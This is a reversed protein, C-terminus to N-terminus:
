EQPLKEYLNNVDEYGSIVKLTPEQDSARISHISIGGRRRYLGAVLLYTPKYKKYLQDYMIEVLNEHFHQTDRFSIIYKLLGEKSPLSEGSIAIFCDGTDKQNTIECNSRLNATHLTLLEREEHNVTDLLNIDEKYTTIEIPLDDVNEFFDDFVTFNETSKYAEHAVHLKARVEGGLAESLDAEIIGEVEEVSKFKELDFSNLYLKLSKSEVMSETTAPYMIKLVGTKPMGNEQLFSMEYAHWVEYGVFHDASTIGSKERNLARPLPVLLTKDHKDPTVYPAVITGDGAKGLHKSALQELTVKETM